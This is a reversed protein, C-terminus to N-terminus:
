LCGAHHVRTTMVSVRGHQQDCAAGRRRCSLALLLLLPEYSFAGVLLLVGGALTYTLYIRAGRQAQATGNHAVLPYTALTLLEYFIVFTFLNGALALLISIARSTQFSHMNHDIANGYEIYSPSSGAYLRAAKVIKEKPIWTIKSIKEPPYAQVQKKLRDFGISWKEVFARDYLNENVVVHIM